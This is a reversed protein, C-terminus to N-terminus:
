KEKCLTLHHGRRREVENMAVGVEAITMYWGSEVGISLLLALGANVDRKAVDIIASEIDKEYQRM